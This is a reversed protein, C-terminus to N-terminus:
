IIMKKSLFISIKKSYKKKLLYIQYLYKSDFIMTILIQSANLM